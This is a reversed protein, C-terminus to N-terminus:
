NTSVRLSVHYHPEVVSKVNKSDVSQIREGKIPKMVEIFQRPVQDDNDGLSGLIGSAM